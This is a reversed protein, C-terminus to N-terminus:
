QNLQESLKEIDSVIKVANKGIEGDIGEGRKNKIERASWSIEAIQPFSVSQRKTRSMPGIWIKEFNEVYPIVVSNKGLQDNLRKFGLELDCQLILFLM